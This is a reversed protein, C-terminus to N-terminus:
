SLKTFAMFYGYPLCTRGPREILPWCTASAKFIEIAKNATLCMLPIGRQIFPSCRDFHFFCGFFTIMEHRIHGILCDAPNPLLFSQDGVLRKEHVECRSCCVCGVMYWFLPGVLIFALEVGAPVFETFFRKCTFLFQTHNGFIALKGFTMFFNGGPVIHRFCKFWYKSPLHFDICSKQFVSIM